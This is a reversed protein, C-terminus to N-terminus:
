PWIVVKCTRKSYIIMKRKNSTYNYSSCTSTIYSLNYYTNKILFMLIKMWTWWRKFIIYNIWIWKELRVDDFYSRFLMDTLIFTSKWYSFCVVHSTLDFVLRCLFIIVIWNELNFHQVQYFIWITCYVLSHYWKM